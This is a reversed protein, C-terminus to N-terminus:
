KHVKRDKTKSEMVMDFSSKKFANKKLWYYLVKGPLFSLFVFGKRKLGKVFVKRKAIKCEAVYHISTIIYKKAGYGDISLILMRYDAYCNPSRFYSKFINGTMGDPQYNVVVTPENLVIFDYKLSIQIFQREANLSVEGPYEKAPSTENYVETRYMRVVDNDTRGQKGNGIERHNTVLLEEPFAGGVINGDPYKNLSVVGAYEKSGNKDWFSLLREVADDMLYDDSDVCLCLETKIHKIAEVYATQLGGNEKYIYVVSFEKENLWPEVIQKTDDTSGDDIIMWCFDKCTQRKLANYATELFGSRNYTPTFVTLKVM